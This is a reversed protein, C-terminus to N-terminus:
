EVEMIIFSESPVDILAIGNKIEISEGTFLNRLNSVNSSFNVKFIGGVEVAVAVLIM